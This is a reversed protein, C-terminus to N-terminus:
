ADGDKSKREYNTTRKYDNWEGVPNPTSPGEGVGSDDTEEVLAKCLKDAMRVAGSLAAKLEQVERLLGNVDVDGPVVWGQSTYVYVKGHIGLQPNPPVYLLSGLLPEETPVEGGKPYKSWVRRHEGNSM